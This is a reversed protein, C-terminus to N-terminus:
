PQAEAEFITDMVTATAQIKGSIEYAYVARTVGSNIHGVADSIV